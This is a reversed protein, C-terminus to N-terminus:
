VCFDGFSHRFPLPDSGGHSGSKVGDDGIDVM